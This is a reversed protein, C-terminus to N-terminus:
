CGKGGSNRRRKWLRGMKIAGEAGESDNGRSEKTTSGDGDVVLSWSVDDPKM